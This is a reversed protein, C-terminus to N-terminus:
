LVFFSIGPCRAWWGAARAGGGSGVVVVLDAAVV